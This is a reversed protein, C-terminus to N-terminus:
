IDDNFITATAELDSLVLGKPTSLKLKFTEAPEVTADGNVDVEVTQTVPTGAIWTLTGTKSSYDSDAVTATGNATAFKVSVTQGSVAANSLTVNFGFTTTGSDGEFKALDTIMVFIPGEEDQIHVLGANDGFSANATTVSNLVVKFMETGERVGQGNVTIPGANEEVDGPAFTVTGSTATYDGPALATNNATAYSVTITQSSPESLRVVPSVTKTGANGELVSLDDVYVFPSPPQSPTGDDNVITGTAQLDSLVLGGKPTSLKLKLTENPEVTADGNVQVSVTQDPGTANTFTLMGTKAAYDNDAVTATGNATAFRVSVTQDVAPTDSLKVHFDLNTPGANGESTAVENITAFLPGEEDQIQVVSANDGFSAHGSTISNLKVQFSEMGEKVTDGKVSIPGATQLVQGPSFTVTGSKTTFDGPPTATGAVTGYSVSITESSPESLRVKPTVIKSASNGELISADDIYVTPETKTTLRVRDPLYNVDYAGAGNVTPFTGTRTGATVVDFFQGPQPVHESADIELTGDLTATGGVALQGYDTGAVPGAIATKLTGGAGQTYGGTTTFKTSKALSITGNNTFAGTRNFNRGNKLTLKGGAANTNLNRLGDLSGDFFKSNLGDLTIDAANTKVDAGTFQLTSGNRVMYAGGTLVDTTQNYNSFGSDLSLKGAGVDLTGENQVNVAISSTLTGTSKTLTGGALVHVLSTGTFDLFSQKNQLELEGGSGVEIDAGNFLDTEFFGAGSITGGLTATGDIHLIGNDLSRGSNASTAATLTGTPSITTTGTASTAGITSNNWDLTGNVTLSGGALHKLTGNTLALKTDSAVTTAGTTDVETGGTLSFTGGGGLNVGAGLKHIGGAFEITNTAASFQGTSTQGGSGSPFRLTGGNESVTGDNDTAVNVDATLTGSKTLTGGALVHVLSTGTFDFFSQKNQLELEGGSGIEIDAGNFLDTEFSSAGSTTGGLTATGDIHLTGNDLQLFTDNGSATLTGTPSITKTGAGSITSNNWDLTGDVALGGAAVNLTANSVTLTSHMASGQTTSNLKLTGSTVDIPRTSEISAANATVGTGVSVEGGPPANQICVNDTAKPVGVPNWNAATFWDNTAATASWNKVGALSCSDVAAASGGLLLTGAVALLGTSAIGVGFRARGFSRL